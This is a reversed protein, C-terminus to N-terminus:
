ISLDALFAFMLLKLWLILLFITFDVLNSLETIHILILVQKLFDFASGIFDCTIDFAYSLFLFAVFSRPPNPRM